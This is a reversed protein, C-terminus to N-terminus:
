RHLGLSSLAANARQQRIDRVAREGKTTPPRQQRPFISFGDPLKREPPAPPLKPNLPKGMARALERDRYGWCDPPHRMWDRGISEVGLEALPTTEWSKRKM